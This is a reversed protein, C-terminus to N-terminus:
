IKYGPQKYLKDWKAEIDPKYVKEAWDESSVEEISVSISSERSHLTEMLDQVIKEALEAKEAESRGPWLKVMVHPM